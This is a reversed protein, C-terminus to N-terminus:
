PAHEIRHRLRRAKLKWWPYGFHAGPIPEEADDPCSYVDALCQAHFTRALVVPTHFGTPRLAADPTCCTQSPINHGDGSSPPELM